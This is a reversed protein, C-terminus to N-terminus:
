PSWWGGGQESLEEDTLEFEGKGDWAVLVARLLSEDGEAEFLEGENGDVQRWRATHTQGEREVEVRQPRETVKCKM